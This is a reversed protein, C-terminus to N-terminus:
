QQQQQELLIYVSETTNYIHENVLTARLMTEFLYDVHTTSTTHRLARKKKDCYTAQSCEQPKM